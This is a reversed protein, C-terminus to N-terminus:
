AFADVGACADDVDANAIAVIIGINVDTDFLGIYREVTV